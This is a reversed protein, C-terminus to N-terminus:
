LKLVALFAEQPIDVKGVSKMRKKGEKQKELLKRKRTIDGGYCKATVNKRLAKIVTRAIVKSGISAQIITEFMQRPILEKLKSALINGYTYASDRHIIVSFADVPEKNILINLKVLDSPRYEHFTYELSAYGRTVSKLKDFFDFIIESLPIYYHINVRDSDPYDMNIYIGRKEEVLQMIAGTFSSPTIISARVFPEEIRDMKVGEPMDNPNDIFKSVGDEFVIRYRVNPVTNIVNIGYERDIRERIIEMHLLGLFGARFGFGLAASSEKEYSFAADNLKLKELSVKLNEYDAPEVPYLGCYVMSKAERYGALPEAAPKQRDTVTDGVRTHSVTKISGCIYGVQGAELSEVPKKKLGFIGAETIEYWTNHSFFKVEMGKKIRGSFVRIYPIAGKYPDFVSDFIMARLPASSDAVPAPIKEVVAELVSEVGEGTKASIKLIDEEACGILDIVEKKVREPEAGPLDLKNLVPIIELGNEVALYVNSVTQAEVGQTADVVLVAGECAALSRSVEYTFDVHGPTDILNFLYREGSSSDYYMTVPHSKITIGRERELDMDDLLQEVMKNKDVTKTIELVRDALTSKGHDIHAIICFNRIKKIDSKM